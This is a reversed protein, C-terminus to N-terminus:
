AIHSTVRVAGDRRRATDGTTTATGSRADTASRRTLTPRRAEGLLRKVILPGRLDGDLPRPAVDTLEGTRGELDATTTGIRVVYGAV